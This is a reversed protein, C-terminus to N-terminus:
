VKQSLWDLRSKPNIGSNCWFSHYCLLCQRGGPLVFLYLLPKTWHLKNWLFKSFLENRGIFVHFRFKVTWFCTSLVIFVRSTSDPSFKSRSQLIRFSGYFPPIQWNHKNCWIFSSSNWSVLPTILIRLDFLFHGFSFTCFYM